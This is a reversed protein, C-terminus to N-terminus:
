SVIQIFESLKKLWDTGHIRVQGQISTQQLKSEDKNCTGLLIFALGYLINLSKM